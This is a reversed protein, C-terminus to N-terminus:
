CVVLPISMEAPSLGGHVGMYETHGDCPEIYFKAPRRAIGVFTGLRLRMTESLPGPGLLDLDEVDATSLLAFHEGFRDGFEAAFRGEDGRHVHFIPVGPEGSPQGVLLGRLPDNKALIFRREPPANALGHDATIIVRARGRLSECLDALMHDLILLLRFVAEHETGKEHSLGDLHPLYLYTLSPKEAKDVSEAVSSIAGRINSYGLAATGGTTYDSYPSGLYEAPMLTLPEHKLRPWVSPAPFLQDPRVGFDTLSRGTGRECFRLTVVGIGPPELYTWWGPIGNSCPWDGTALTTLAVATTSLFVARLEQVLYRRLFADASLKRVQHSGMGDVLILVLHEPHGIHRCIAEGGPTLQVGELGGLHFVARVLDVYNPAEASPRILQGSDFWERVRDIPAM